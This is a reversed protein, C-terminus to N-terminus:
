KYKELLKDINPAAGGGATPANKNKYEYTMDYAERTRTRAGQIDSIAQDISKKVDPADQRRDIAAFSATLQKGEQNSVGGLAGGTKSADRLDQLAQFGGKAVIKDYLAQAARGDPTLAPLRGAAIGTISSLGPHDRLTELDKIFSQSKAEFGKIASTAQPYVAERKQIDKPTVGEIAKAPTMRNTVAEERSVLISKGTKPDLVEVPAANSKDLALRSQSVGLQGQSVGLQAQSVGLQGKQYPTMGAAQPPLMPQRFTPSNPNEDVYTKSGDAAVVERIKPTELALKDKASLIGTIMKQQWNVFRPPPEGNPGLTTFPMLTAKLSDAKQQDIDGNALHKDISAIADQPSSLAAIDSVAKNAKEEKLKYDIEKTQSVNKATTSKSQAAAAIDKEFTPILHGAGGAAMANRVKAPDITGDPNLGQKYAESLVNQTKEARQAAGLQYQALANQNQYNQIQSAQAYQALPDNLQLPKVQLAINPDIPM